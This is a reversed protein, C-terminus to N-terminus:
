KEKFPARFGGSDWFQWRWKLSLIETGRDEATALSSWHEWQVSFGGPLKWGIAALGLPKESCMDNHHRICGGTPAGVGFEVFPQANAPKAIVLAMLGALVAGIVALIGKVVWGRMEQLAPMEKEILDIRKDMVDQRDRLSQMNVVASDHKVELRVVSAMAESLKAMGMRLDDVKGDVGKVAGRLEGLEAALRTVEPLNGNNNENM